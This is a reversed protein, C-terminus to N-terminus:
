RDYQVYLREFTKRLPVEGYSHYIKSNKNDIVTNNFLYDANKDTFECCLSEDDFFIFYNFSSSQFYHMM